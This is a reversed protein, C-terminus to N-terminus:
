KGALGLLEEFRDIRHTSRLRQRMETTEYGYSVLCFDVGAAEATAADVRSDGVFLTRKAAVQAQERLAEVILPDPKRRELDGQGVVSFFHPALELESVVARAQPGPKNTAIAMPRPGFAALTEVVKAYPRTHDTLHQDYYNRYTRLMSEVSAENGSPMARVMLENVGDGVMQGIDSASHTPFGHITLAHNLAVAIDPLSHVLTGDLDFLILDYM